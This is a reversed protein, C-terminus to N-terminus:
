VSRPACRASCPLVSAAAIAALRKACALKFGPGFVMVVTVAESILAVVVTGAM